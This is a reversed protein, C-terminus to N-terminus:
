DLWNRLPKRINARGFIARRWGPNDLQAAVAIKLQVAAADYRASGYYSM